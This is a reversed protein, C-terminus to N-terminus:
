ATMKMEDEERCMEKIFIMENWLEKIEPINRISFYEIMNIDKNIQSDFWGMKYSFWFYILRILLEPSWWIVGNTFSQVVFHAYFIYLVIPM